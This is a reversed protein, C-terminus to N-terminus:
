RQRLYNCVYHRDYIQANYRNYQNLNTQLSTIEIPNITNNKIPCNNCNTPICCCAKNSM